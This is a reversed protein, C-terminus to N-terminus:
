ARFHTSDDSFLYASAHFRAKSNLAKNQLLMQPLNYQKAADYVGSTYAAKAHAIEAASGSLVTIAAILPTSYAVHFLSYAERIVKGAFSTM